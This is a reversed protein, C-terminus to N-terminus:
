GIWDTKDGVGTVCLEMIARTMATYLLSKESNLYTEQEEKSWDDFKYPKYPCTRDNVDSLLVVKYELGKLSHFTCLHVGNRNGTQDRLDFYEIGDNHLYSMIERYSDKTRTAIVIDSLKVHDNNDITESIKNILFSVEDKRTNFVEYLPVNGHFMSVYGKLSEEGEDFDKYKVGKLASVAYKKIEETTRYNVKLRKSRRGRINVDAESFVVKRSYISQYPDGVLFLDNEGEDVLSRIFRIEVNSCDQVEDLIIHNFPRQEPHENLYSAVRNFLELRDIIDNAKKYLQYKQFLQWVELRKKRTIPKGRGFRTQRFYSQRDTIDYHYFIEQTERDLFDLEMGTVETELIKEWIDRSTLTYSYGTITSNDTLIKFKKGLDQVLSDITTLQYRQPNIKLKQVQKELNRKLANTYTAFLVKDGNGYKKSLYKLRHLAAVTKGTGAGGTVKVSGNFDKNVLARQSPHLFLSWKELDGDLMQQLLEDDVEVYFRKFLLSDGDENQKSEEVGEVIESYEVGDLLYFLNEFVEEPIRKELKELAPFSNIQKVDDLIKDPVGLKLLEEKSLSTIVSSNEPEDYSYYKEWQPRSTVEKESTKVTYLQPSNTVNNWEFTKNEAWEMAEDHHDVWLIYYDDRGKITGIIARYSKDIRATRLSQDKFTSISELNIASSNKNDRFKQQFEVVKKQIGKPLKIFSDFFKDGILLRM